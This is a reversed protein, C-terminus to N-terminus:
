HKVKVKKHGTKIAKNKKQAFPTLVAAEAVTEDQVKEALNHRLMEVAVGGNADVIQGKVLFGNAKLMRLKM